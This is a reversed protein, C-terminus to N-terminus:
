SKPEAGIDDALLQRVRHLCRRQAPNLRPGVLRDMTPVDISPVPGDPRPVVAAIAEALADADEDGGDALRQFRHLLAGLRQARQPDDLLPAAAEISGAIGDPHLADLLRAADREDAPLARPEALLGRRSLEAGWAAAPDLQSEATALERLRAQTARLQRIQQDIDDALARLAQPLDDTDSTDSTDSSGDALAPIDALAMGVDRLRRVTVLRVLDASGYRRYGSADRAPERLLGIAHYHRVARVTVGALTALEGIRLEGPQVDDDAVRCTM